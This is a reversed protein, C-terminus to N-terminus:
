CHVSHAYFLVIHKGNETIFMPTNNYRDKVYTVAKEMGDPYINFWSFPTQLVNSAESNNLMSTFTVMIKTVAKLVRVPEGIPVGNRVGSKLYLGETRSNGQGRKCASYMCDQVYFATYYNVGIFDLGKKLKEKEKSSFKPLLSGVLNEMETPYKGLIIPDM